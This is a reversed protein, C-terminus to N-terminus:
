MWTQRCVKNCKSNTLDTITAVKRIIPAVAHASPTCHLGLVSAACACEFISFGGDKEGATDGGEQRRGTGAASAHAQAGATGPCRLQAREASVFPFLASVFLAGCAGLHAGFGILWGTQQHTTAGSKRASDGWGGKSDRSTHLHPGGSHGLRHPVLGWVYTRRRM